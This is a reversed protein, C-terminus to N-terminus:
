FRIRRNEDKRVGRYNDIFEKSEEESLRPDLAEFLYYGMDRYTDMERVQKRTTLNPNYEIAFRGGYSGACLFGLRVIIYDQYLTCDDGTFKLFDSILYGNESFIANLILRATEEHFNTPNTSFFLGNEDIFGDVTSLTEEKIGINKDTANLLENIHCNEKYMKSYEFDRVTALSRLTKRGDKIGRQVYSNKDVLSPYSIWRLECILFDYYPKFHGYDKSFKEFTERNSESKECYEMCYKKCFEGINEYPVSFTVNEPTIFKITGDEM